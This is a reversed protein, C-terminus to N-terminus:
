IKGKKQLIRRAHTSVPTPVDKSKMISRLDREQLYNLFKLATPTPCKPNTALGFKVQYNRTWERNSSIIRLVEDCVNRAKALAEIENETIKPSRITASAVLKNRDRILIGRAEKGGIRALKIKQMINMGSIQSLLSGEEEEDIEEDADQLLEDAFEGADGGLLRELAARAAEDTIEDPDDLEVEAEDPVVESSPREVGLFGLIRDITARGTLPNQGLAEVIEPARLMRQQNNAVIDVVRRHPLSALYVLTRDDCSANLVLREMRSGDDKFLHAMYGLVSPHTESAGLVTEAVSDPLQELSEKARTKVEHDDDHLLAFLVTALEVPRLPLAGGAAMRRAEVPADRRVYREAQPSLVLRIKEPQREQAELQDQQAM